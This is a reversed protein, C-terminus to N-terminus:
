KKKKMRERELFERVTLGEKKILGLAIGVAAETDTVASWVREEKIIRKM